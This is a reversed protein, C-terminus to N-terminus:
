RLLDRLESFLYRLKADTQESKPKNRELSEQLEVAVGEQWKRVSEPSEVLDAQGRTIGSTTREARIDM